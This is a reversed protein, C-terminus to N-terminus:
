QAGGLDAPGDLGSATDIGLLSFKLGDSRQSGNSLRGLAGNSGDWLCNSFPKFQGVSVEAFQGV